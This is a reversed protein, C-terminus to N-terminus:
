TATLYIDFTVHLHDLHALSSDDSELEQLRSQSVRSILKVPNHDFTEFIDADIRRFLAVAEHNWCWWLNYALKQLSQLREPLHPLVTFTRISRSPMDADKGLGNGTAVRWTEGSVRLLSGNAVRLSLTNRVAYFVSVARK